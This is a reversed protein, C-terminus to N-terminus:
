RRTGARNNGGRKRDARCASAGVSEVDMQKRAIEPKVILGPADEDALSVLQGGRLGRYRDKSEDYSDAFGFTDQIWTLLVLGDRISRILVSSDKLRPLYPYRAFDEVLQKIAVHDGRWLPVRDLKM